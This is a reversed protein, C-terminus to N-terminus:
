RRKSIWHKLEGLEEIRLLNCIIIYFVVAACISAALSIINNALTQAALRANLLDNIWYAFVGMSVSASLIKVFSRLLRKLYLTGVKKQLIILLVSANLIGALSNALALGGV